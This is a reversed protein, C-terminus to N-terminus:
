ARLDFLPELRSTDINRLRRLLRRLDDEIALCHLRHDHFSSPAM